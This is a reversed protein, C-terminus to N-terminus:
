QAILGCIFAVSCLEIEAKVWKDRENERAHCILKPDVVGLLEWDFKSAHIVKNAFDRIGIKDTLGNKMFLTGSDLQSNQRKLYKSIGENDDLLRLYMALEAVAREARIKSSEFLTIELNQVRGSVRRNIMDVLMKQSYAYTMVVILNEHILKRLHNSVDFM